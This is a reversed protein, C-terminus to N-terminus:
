PTCEVSISFMARNDPTTGLYMPLTTARVTSIVEAPRGEVTVYSLDMSDNAITNWVANAYDLTESRNEKEGTIAIQVMPQQEASAFTEIVLGNFPAVGISPYATETPVDFTWITSRLVGHGKAALHAAIVDLYSM